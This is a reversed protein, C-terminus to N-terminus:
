KAGRRGGSKRGNGREGGLLWAIEEGEESEAKLLRSKTLRLAEIAKRVASVGESSAGGVDTQGAGSSSAGWPSIMWNARDCLAEVASLLGELEADAGLRERMQPILENKIRLLEKRAMEKWEMGERIRYTIELLIGTADHFPMEVEDPLKYFKAEPAEIKARKATLQKLLEGLLTVASECLSHVGVELSGWDSWNWKPM